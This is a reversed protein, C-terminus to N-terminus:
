VECKLEEGSKALIGSYALCPVLTGDGLGSIGLESYYGNSGCNYCNRTNFEFKIYGVPNKKLADAENTSTDYGAPIDYNTIFKCRYSTYSATERVPTWCEITTM